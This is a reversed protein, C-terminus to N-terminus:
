FVGSTAGSTHQRQRVNGLDQTKYTLPGTPRTTSRGDESGSWHEGSKHRGPTFVGAKHRPAGNEMNLPGIDKIYLKKQGNLIREM